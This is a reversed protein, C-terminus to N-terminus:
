QGSTAPLTVTPVPTARISPTETQSIAVVTAFVVLFIVLILLGFLWRRKIKGQETPPAIQANELLWRQMLGVAIKLNAAQGSVIERYELGRAAANIATADMPYDTEVLWVEIRFIDIARLPDDYILGSIATLVLREDRNLTAWIDRFEGESETYVAAQTDKVDDPTLSASQSQSVENQSVEYLHHGFRQLLIPEGGSLNQVLTLAAENLDCPNLLVISAEPTLSTLRHVVALNVLPALKGLHEEYFTDMTLAFGLQPQHLSALFYPTDPPLHHSDMAQALRDVDDVLLVIRRYARIAHFIEPLFEDHLWVRLDGDHPPQPLPHASYINVADSLAQVLGSLWSREGDLSMQRLPLYVGIYSEDFVRDFQRLLTTKGIRRRGLYVAPPTALNTDTLHQHLRAFAAERGAFRAYPSAADYPNETPPNTETIRLESM